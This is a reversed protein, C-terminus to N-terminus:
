PFPFATGPAHTTVSVSGPQQRRLLYVLGAGLVSLEGGAIAVGAEDDIGIGVPTGSEEMGALLRPFGGFGTFHPEVLTDEVLGLGDGFGLPGGTQDFEVALLRHGGEKASARDGTHILVETTLLAGASVGAFPVGSAVRNRILDRAPSAVYSRHYSPVHGGAMLIGSSAAITEMARDDLRGSSGPLVPAVETAGNDVLPDHYGPLYRRSARDQMLLAIRGDGDGGRAAAVFPEIIATFTEAVHGYLFVPGM